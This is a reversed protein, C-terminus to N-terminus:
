PRGAPAVGGTSPISKAPTLTALNCTQELPMFTYNDSITPGTIM